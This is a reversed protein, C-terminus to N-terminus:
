NKMWDITELFLLIEKDFSMAPSFDRGCYIENPDVHFSNKDVGNEKYELFNWIPKSFPHDRPLEISYKLQCNTILYSYIINNMDRPLENVYVQCPDYDVKKCTITLTFVNVIFPDRKLCVSRSCKETNKYGFYEHMKSIDCGDQKLRNLRKNLIILNNM